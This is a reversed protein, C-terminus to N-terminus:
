RYQNGVRTMKVGNKKGWEWCLAQKKKWNEQKSCEDWAIQGNPLINAFRLFTSVMKAGFKAAFM